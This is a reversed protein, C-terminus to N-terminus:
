LIIWLILAPVWIISSAGVVILVFEILANEHWDRGWPEIHGDSSWVPKYEKALQYNM